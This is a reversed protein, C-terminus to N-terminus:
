EEWTKKATKYADYLNYIWFIPIFIIILMLGMGLSSPDLVTDCKQTWFTWWHSCDQHTNTGMILLGTVIILPITIVFLVGKLIQGNYIQGLGPYFFSLVAAIGTSKREHNSKINNSTKIPKNNSSDDVSDLYIWYLSIIALIIMVYKSIEYQISDM